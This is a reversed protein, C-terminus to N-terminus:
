ANEFIISQLALILGILVWIHIIALTSFFNYQVLIGIFGCTLGILGARINVLEQVAQSKKIALFSRTLVLAVILLFASFGIIGNEALLELYENNVIDSSPKAPNYGSKFAGYNGMGVGLMPKSGWANVANNYENLRGQTSESRGFDQIKLHSVFKERAVPSIASIIGLVILFAVALGLCYRIWRSISKSNRISFMWLIVLMIIFGLIAGRSITLVLIGSLCFLLLKNKLGLKDGFLLQGLLLSIPILLYNGLYLPEKSFAHVRPFGFTVKSYGEILGTALHSLGAMDGIFQYISFLLVIWASSLLVRELTQWNKKTQVLDFTVVSLLITFITLLDYIVSKQQWIAQYTSFFITSILILLPIAIPNSRFPQRKSIKETIWIILLVLGLIHNIKLTFGSIELTPIREFPLFFVLLMLGTFKNNGVKVIAFILAAIALGIIYIVLLNM